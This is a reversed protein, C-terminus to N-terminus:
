QLSVTATIQGSYSGAMILGDAVSSVVPLSLTLVWVNPNAAQLPLDSPGAFVATASIGVGTLDLSAVATTGATFSPTYKTLVGSYTLPTAGPTTLRATSATAGGNDATLTLDYGALQNCMVGIYVVKDAPRSLQTMGGGLYPDFDYTNSGDTESMTAGTSDLWQVYVAPAGPYSLDSVAGHVQAASLLRIITIGITKWRNQM